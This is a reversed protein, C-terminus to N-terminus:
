RDNHFEKQLVTEGYKILSYKGTELTKYVNRIGTEFRASALEIAKQNEGHKRYFLIIEARRETWNWVLEFIFNFMCEILDNNSLDSKFGMWRKKRKAIFLAEQSLHFAKGAIEQINDSLSTSISGIGVGLYFPHKIKEFLSFYIDFLVDLRSIMGQFGDGGTISFDSVLYESFNSNIEQIAIKLREQTDQRNEIKKSSKLDGNLVIYM